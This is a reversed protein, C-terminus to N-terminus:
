PVVFSQSIPDSEQFKADVATVYYTVTTGSAPPNADDYFQSAVAGDPTRDCRNTYDAGNGTAGACSPDRYIRYFLINDGDPDTAATAWEVHVGGDGGPTVVPSGTLVPRNNALGADIDVPVLSSPCGPRKGTFQAPSMTMTWGGGGLVSGSCSFDANAQSTWRNDFAVVYYNVTGSGPPNDDFCSFASPDVEDCVLADTAPDPTGAGTRYVSYSNIDGDSGGPGWTIETITGARSNIGFGDTAVASPSPTNRNVNVLAQAPNGEAGLLFAQLSVTYRGDPLSPSNNADLNWTLSWNKGSTDGAATGSSLGPDNVRWTASEAATSTQFTITALSGTEIASGPAPSHQAVAISSQVIGPGLGGSPNAVLASQLVCNDGTGGTGQDAGACQPTARGPLTWKVDVEIRRFDDPNGDTSGTGEAVTGEAVSGGCYTGGSGTARGGDKVDDFVCTFVEVTYLIGRSRLQWGTATTDADGLRPQAQLAPVIATNTLQDYPLSRAVEIMERAVNTAGERARTNNTVQNGTDLLAVAGLVGSLLLFIAVVVEVITFGREDLRPRSDM